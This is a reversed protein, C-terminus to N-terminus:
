MTEQYRRLLDLAHEYFNVFRDRTRGGRLGEALLADHVDGTSFRGHEFSYITFDYFRQWDLPHPMDQNLSHVFRHLMGRGDADLM